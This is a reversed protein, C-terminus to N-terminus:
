RFLIRSKEAEKELNKWDAEFYDPIRAKTPPGKSTPEPTKRDDSDPHEKPPSTKQKKETKEKKDTEEIRESKKKSESHDRNPKKPKPPDQKRATPTETVIRSTEPLSTSRSPAATPRKAAPRVVAAKVEEEPVVGSPM